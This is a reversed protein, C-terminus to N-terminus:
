GGHGKNPKNGIEAFSGVAVEVLDDGERATFLADLGLERAKAPGAEKGLVLLATAWADAAACSSAGVTVAALGNRLPRGTRPDITHSIIGDEFERWHRYDGSTALATHSVEITRVLERRDREPRELGVMWGSGDAKLGSARVEGDISVLYDVIGFAELVDALCDVGYGKAIGSLDLWMASHRRLRRGEADLELGRVDRGTAPPSAAHRVGLPVSAGPAGFGWAALPMGMGVDFAGDSDKGVQMGLAVVHCLQRPIDIWEGIPSNNFRMLDSEPKWTSMQADVLDVANQLASGVSALPLSPRASVIASWRTGMTPGSMAQRLPFTAPNEPFETSMKLIGDM